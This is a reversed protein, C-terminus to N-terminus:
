PFTSRLGPATGRSRVTDFADDMYGQTVIFTAGAVDGSSWPQPGATTPSFVAWEYTSGSGGGMLGNAFTMADARFGSGVAADSAEANLVGVSFPGCFMRGRSRGRPQGSAIPSSFSLVAAVENPLPDATDPTFTITDTDIVARPEPDTLDYYKLVIFGDLVPSYSDGLVSVGTQLQITILATDTLPNGSHSKFHLTNTVVDEPLGSVPQWAM